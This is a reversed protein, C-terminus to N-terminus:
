RVFPGFLLELESVPIEIWVAANSPKFSSM